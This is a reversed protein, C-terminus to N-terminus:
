VRHHDTFGFEPHRGRLITVLGFMVLRIFLSSNLLSSPTREMWSDFAHHHTGICAINMDTFISSAIGILGLWLTFLLSTQSINVIAPRCGVDEFTDFRCGHVIIAQFM